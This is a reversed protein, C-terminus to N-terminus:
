CPTAPATSVRSLIDRGTNDTGFWHEASPPQMAKTLDTLYPDYPAVLARRPGGARDHGAAARWWRWGTAPWDACCARARFASRRRSAPPNRRLPNTEVSM